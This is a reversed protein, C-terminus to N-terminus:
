TFLAYLLEKFPSVRMRKAEIAGLDRVRQGSSYLATRYQRIDVHCSFGATHYWDEVEEPSHFSTFGATYADYMNHFGGIYFWRNIISLIATGLLPIRRLLEVLAALPLVVTATLQSPIKSFFHNRLINNVTVLLPNGRGYVYLSVLGGVKCFNAISLFAKRASPTHHLVGISYVVDFSNAAFPPAFLDGRIVLVNQINKTNEFAVYSAESIDMGVVVEPNSLAAVAIYRGNGCGADFVTKGYLFSPILRTYNFFHLRESGARSDWGERSFIKWEKGFSMESDRQRRSLEQPRFDPVGNLIPYKSGSVSVLTGAIVHNEEMREVFCELPSGSAPCRLMSLHELRM